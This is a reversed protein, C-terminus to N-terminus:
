IRPALRALQRAGHRLEERQMARLYTEKCIEQSDFHLKVMRLEVGMRLAFAPAEDELVVDSPIQLCGLVAMAGQAGHGVRLCARGPRDEGVRHPGAHGQHREGVHVERAGHGQRCRHEALAETGGGQLESPASSTHTRTNRKLIPTYIYSGPNRTRPGGGSHTPDVWSFPFFCYTLKHRLRVVRMVHICVYVCVICVCMSVSLYMCVGICAHVYLCAGGVWLPAPCVICVCM